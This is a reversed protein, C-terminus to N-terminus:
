EGNGDSDNLIRTGRKVPPAYLNNINSLVDLKDNKNLNVSTKMQDINDLSKRIELKYERVTAIAKILEDGTMQVIIANKQNKQYFSDQRLSNLEGNIINALTAHYEDTAKELSASTKHYSHTLFAFITGVFLPYRFLRSARNVFAHKRSTSDPTVSDNTTFAFRKGRVLTHLAADGLYFTSFLVLMTTPVYFQFYTGSLDEKVLQARQLLEEVSELIALQNALHEEFHATISDIRKVFQADGGVDSLNADEQAHTLFPVTLVVTFFLKYILSLM